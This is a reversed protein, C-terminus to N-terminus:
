NKGSFHKNNGCFKYFNLFECACWVISIKVPHEIINKEWDM